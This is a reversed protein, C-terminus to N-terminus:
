KLVTVDGDTYAYQIRRSSTRRRSALVKHEEELEREEMSGPDPLIWRGNLIEGCHFVILFKYLRYHSTDVYQNQECDKDELIHRVKGVM